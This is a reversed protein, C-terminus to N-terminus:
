SVLELGLHGCPRVDRRGAAAAPDTPRRIGAEEFGPSGTAVAATTHEEHGAEQRVLGDVKHDYHEAGVDQFAAEPHARSM